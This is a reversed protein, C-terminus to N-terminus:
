FGKKLKDMSLNFFRCEGVVKKKKKKEKEKKLKRRRTKALLLLWPAGLFAFFLPSPSSQSDFEFMPRQSLSFLNCLFLQKLKKIPNVLMNRRPKNKTKTKTKTKQKQKQKQKQKKHKKGIYNKSKKKM